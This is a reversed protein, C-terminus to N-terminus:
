GMRLRPEAGNRPRLDTDKGNPTDKMELMRLFKRLKRRSLYIDGVEQALMVAGLMQERPPKEPAPERHREEHVIRCLQEKNEPLERFEKELTGYYEGSPFYNHHLDSFCGEPSQAYPCDPRPEPCEGRPM